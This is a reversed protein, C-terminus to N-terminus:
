QQDDYLDDNEIQYGAWDEDVDPNPTEMENGEPRSQVEKWWGPVERVM